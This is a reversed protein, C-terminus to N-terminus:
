ISALITAIDGLVNYVAGSTILNNSDETVESDVDRWGIDYDTDGIKSLVQGETGGSPIGEGSSKSNQGFVKQWAIPISTRGSMNHASKPTEEEQQVVGLLGM